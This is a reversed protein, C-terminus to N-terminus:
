VVVQERLLHIMFGIRIPTKLTVQTTSAPHEVGRNGGSVM